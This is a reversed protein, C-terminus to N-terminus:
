NACDESLQKQWLTTHSRASIASLNIQAECYYMARNSGLAFSFGWMKSPINSEQTVDGIYIEEGQMAFTSNGGGSTQWLMQGTKAKVAFVREEFQIYLVGDIVGLVPGLPRSLPLYGDPSLHSSMHWVQKGDSVRFSYVDANLVEYLLDGDITIGMSELKQPPKREEMDFSWLISGNDVSVAIVRFSDQLVMVNQRLGIFTYNAENDIGKGSLVFNARRQGDSARLSVIISGLTYISTEDAVISFQRIQDEAHYWLTHGDTLALAEVGKNRLIYVRNNYFTFAEWKNNGMDHLWLQKGSDESFAILMSNDKTGGNDYFFYIIGNQVYAKADFNSTDIDVAHEWAVTGDSLRIAKLSCSTASSGCMTFFYHTDAKVVTQSTLTALLAGDEPRIVFTKDSARFRNATQVTLVSGFQQFYLAEHSKELPGLATPFVRDFTGNSVYSLIFFEAFRCVPVVLILAELLVITIVFSM